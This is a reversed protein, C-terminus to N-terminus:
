VNQDGREFLYSKSLTVKDLFKIFSKHDIEKIKEIKDKFLMEDSIKTEILELIDGFPEDEKYLLDYGLSRVLKDKCLDFVKKDHLSNIAENVIDIIKKYDYDNYYVIVDFLAYHKSARVKSSYVINNNTRLANYILANEKSNLIYYLMSFYVLEDEKMGDIIYNLYLVSQNYKTIEKKEEYKDIKFFDNFNIDLNFSTIKKDFVRDFEKTFKDKDEISGFVYVFYNNNLINEEYYKYVDKSTVSNLYNMYSEHSLGLKEDKDIFLYYKDMTDEYISKPFEKERDLLFRKEYEFSNKDFDKGDVNANYICDKLFELCEKFSYDDILGEKPLVLSFKIYTVDLYRISNVSYNIIYLSDVKNYFANPDNYNKNYNSLERLLLNRKVVNENSTKTPFLINIIVRNVDKVDYIVPENKFTFVM